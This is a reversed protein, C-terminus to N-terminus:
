GATGWPHGSFVPKVKSLLRNDLVIEIKSFKDFSALVTDDSRFRAEYWSSM